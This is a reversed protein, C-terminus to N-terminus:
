NEGYAIPQPSDWSCPPAMMTHASYMAGVTWALCNM